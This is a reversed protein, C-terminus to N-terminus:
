DAIIKEIESRVDESVSFPDFNALSNLFTRPDKLLNSKLDDWTSSETTNNFIMNM